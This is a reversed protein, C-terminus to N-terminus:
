LNEIISVEPILLNYLATFEQPIADLASVTRKLLESDFSAGYRTTLWQKFNAPLNKSKALETEFELRLELWDKNKNVKEIFTSVPFYETIDPLDFAFLGVRERSDYKIAKVCFEALFISESGRKSKKLEDLIAIYDEDSDAAACARQWIDGIVKNDENDLIIFIEAKSFKFLFQADQALQLSRLGRLAFLEVGNNRFEDAWLTEFIVLEHEGEVLAIRRCFQLLDSADLGLDTLRSRMDAPMAEATTNGEDDQSVHVLKNTKDDLFAPSHTAVITIAGFNESIRKLGNELYREANRHLGAEPEDLLVVLSENMMPEHMSLKIAFRAWREQANSLKSIDSKVQEGNPDRREEIAMWNLMGSRPWDGIENLSCRLEPSNSMLSRYYMSAKKSLQDVKLIVEQKLRVGEGTREVIDSSHDAEIEIIRGTGRHMVWNADRHFLQFLYNITETNLDVVEETIVDIPLKFGFEKRDIFLVDVGAFHTPSDASGRRHSIGWNTLPTLESIIEDSVMFKEAAQACRDASNESAVPSQGFENLLLILSNLHVTNETQCAWLRLVPKPDDHIKKLMFFGENVIEECIKVINEIKQENDDSGSFREVLLRATNNRATDGWDELQEGIQRNNNVEVGFYNARFSGKAFKLLFWPSGVDDQYITETTPPSKFFLSSSGDSIQSHHQLTEKIGQLIRSKGVGNRGYLVSMGDELKLSLDWIPEYQDFSISLLKNM